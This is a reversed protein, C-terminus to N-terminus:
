LSRRSKLPEASGTLLLGTVSIAFLLVLPLFDEAFLQVAAAGEDRMRRRMALMVGPIVLLAAWVLGHFVLFGFWSESSFSITPFGFVVARYRQLQDPLSEFSARGFVLSFTIAAAIICGWMILSHALGRLPDRKWIFRNLAFDNTVREIWSCFNAAFHSRRFFVQWGRRWYLATPPRQLWMAYRYTIGFVAFLSAFTYAVLAADFRSLNRSGVIILLALIATFFLGWGVAKVVERKM